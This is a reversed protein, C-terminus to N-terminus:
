YARTLSLAGFVALVAEEPPHDWLALSDPPPGEEGPRGLVGLWYGVSWGSRGVQYTTGFEGGYLLKSTELDIALRPALWMSGRASIRLLGQERQAYDLELRVGTMLLLADGARAIAVEPVLDGAWAYGPVVPYEPPARDWALSAGLFPGAEPEDEADPTGILSFGGSVGVATDRDGEAHAAGASLLILTSIALSRRM